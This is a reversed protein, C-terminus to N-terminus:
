LSIPHQEALVSLHNCRGIREGAPGVLGHRDGLGVEDVAMREHAGPGVSHSGRREGHAAEPPDLALEPLEVAHVRREDAVGTAIGRVRRVFLDTGTAGAVGLGHTTTYSGPTIM